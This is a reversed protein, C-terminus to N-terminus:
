GERGTASEAEVQQMTMGIARLYAQQLIKSRPVMTQETEQNLKNMLAEPLSITFVKATM